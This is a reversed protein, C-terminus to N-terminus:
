LVGGSCYGVVAAATISADKVRDFTWDIAIMDSSAESLPEGDLSADARKLASSGSGEASTADSEFFSSVFADTSFFSSLIPTVAEVAGRKAAAPFIDGDSFADAAAAAFAADVSTKLASFSSSVGM